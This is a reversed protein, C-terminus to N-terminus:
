LYLLAIGFINRNEKNQYAKSIM